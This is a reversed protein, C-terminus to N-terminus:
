SHSVPEPTAACPSEPAHPIKTGWGPFSGTDESNCALNKAVLGGLFVMKYHKLLSGHLSEEQRRVQKYAEKGLAEFLQGM